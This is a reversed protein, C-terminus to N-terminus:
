GNSYETSFAKKKALDDLMHNSYPDVFTNDRMTEAHDQQELSAVRSMLVRSDSKHIEASSERKLTIASINKKDRQFEAIDEPLENSISPATVQRQEQSKQSSM